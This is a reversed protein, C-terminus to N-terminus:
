TNQYNVRLGSGKLFSTANLSMPQHLQEISSCYGVQCFPLSNRSNLALRQQVYPVTTGSCLTMQPSFSLIILELVLAAFM